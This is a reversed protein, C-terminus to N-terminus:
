NKRLLSLKLSQLFTKRIPLLNTLKVTLNKFFPMLLGLNTLLATGDILIRRPSRQDRKSQLQLESRSQSDQAWRRSSRELRLANLILCRPIVNTFSSIRLKKRFNKRAQLRIIRLFNLIMSRQKNHIMKLRPLKRSSRLGSLSIM